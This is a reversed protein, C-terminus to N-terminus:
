ASDEGDALAQGTPAQGTPPPRAGLISVHKLQIDVITARLAPLDVTATSAIIEDRSLDATTMSCKEIRTM